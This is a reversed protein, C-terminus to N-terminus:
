GEEVKGIIKIQSYKEADRKFKEITENFLSTAIIWNGGDYLCGNIKTYVSYHNGRAKFIVNDVEVDEGNLDYMLKAYDM